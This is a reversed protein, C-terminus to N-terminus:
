WPRVFSLQILTDRDWPIIPLYNPDNLDVKAYFDLNYETHEISLTVHSDSVWKDTDVNLAVAWQDELTTSEEDNWSQVRLALSVEKSIDMESRLMLTYALSDHGFDGRDYGRLRPVDDDIELFYYGVGTKFEASIWGGQYQAALAPFLKIQKEVSSVTNRKGQLEIEWDLSWSPTFHYLNGGIDYASKFWVPIHDPDLKDKDHDVFVEFMGSFVAYNSVQYQAYVAGNIGFTDSDEVNFDHIGFRYQWQAEQANGCPVYVFALLVLGLRTLHRRVFATAQM